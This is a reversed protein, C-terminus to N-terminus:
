KVSLRRLPIRWSYVRHQRYQRMRREAYPFHAACGFCYTDKHVSRLHQELSHPNNFVKQCGTCSFLTEEAREIPRELTILLDQVKTEELWNRLNCGRDELHHFLAHMRTHKKSCGPCKYNLNLMSDQPVTGCYQRIADMVHQFTAKSQCSGNELHQM